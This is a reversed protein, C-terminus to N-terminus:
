HDGLYATVYDAASAPKSRTESLLSEELEFKWEDGLDASMRELESAVAAASNPRNQPDKSLLGMVLRTLDSPLTRQSALDVPEEKLTRRLIESIKGEGFPRRGTFMQYLVVGLSFLDSARTAGQRRLVEPAVYGATGILKDGVEAAQRVIRATGFDAVKIAGRRSLLINGPKLDGHVLNVGHAAVLAATVASAIGVGERVQLPGSRRIYQDLSVGDIKEMAIYATDGKQEFDFVTVINPHNLRALHVAESQLKAVIEGDDKLPVAKLAVSRQLVPDFGDFVTGSGGSGLKKMVKYRGLFVEGLIERKQEVLMLQAFTSELQAIESGGGAPAEVGAVAAQARVLRRIPLVLLRYGLFSLAGAVFLAGVVASLTAREMRRRAADAASRPQRSIVLWPTEGVPFHAAIIEEGALDLYRGAGGALRESGVQEILTAPLEAVIARDGLVSKSHRDVLVTEADGIQNAERLVEKLPEAEALLVMRNPAEGDRARELMPVQIRVWRPDLGAIRALEEPAEALARAVVAASDRKQALVITEGAANVIGAALLEPREQIMGALVEHAASAGLDALSPNRRAASAERRLADVYAASRNAASSAAFIQLRQVQDLLADRHISLQWLGIALPFAAAVTLALAVWVLLSGRGRAV